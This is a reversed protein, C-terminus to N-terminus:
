LIKRKVLFNPFHNEATLQAGTARSPRWKLIQEASLFYNFPRSRTTVGFTQTTVSTKEPHRKLTGNAFIAGVHPTNLNNYFM